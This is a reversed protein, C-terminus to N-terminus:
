APETTIRITEVAWRAREMAEARTGGVTMVVGARAPPSHMPGIVDGAKVRVQCFAVGPAGAVEAVGEVRRVVGPAPFLYRQAVGRQFRPRLDEPDVPEGLAQRIAAGLFDVGTNLPIEHTCFFGGSLRAALEIVHPRGESVVIDGKVVGDAVGLSRAAADVLRRVAAQSAEDLFSPLEGGNEIVHPAYRELFEYNRDSFGPTHAVGGIVLSETSVQPGALFREAMVRGSPSHSRAFEFAWDFDVEPSLRLVGRAGRSDVPKVVLRGDQARFFERLEAADRVPAFWPVPVGDAVFKEKMALKDMALGAAGVPIGPRGLAAAVSAATLPVDVALCVVGDIPRVRRHYDLVATVTAAVDYTSAIIAGDAALAGLARPNMDSVVVGLGMERAKEVGPLMEIGGGIFLITKGAAGAEAGRTM